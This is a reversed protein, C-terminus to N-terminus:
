DLVDCVQRKELLRQRCFVHQYCRAFGFWYRSKEYSSRTDFSLLGAIFGKNSFALKPFDGKARFGAIM